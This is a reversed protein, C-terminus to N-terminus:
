AAPQSPGPRLLPTSTDRRPRQPITYTRVRGDRYHIRVQLCTRPRPPALAGPCAPLAWGRRSRGPVVGLVAAGTPALAGRANRRRVRVSLPSGGAMALADVRSIRAWGATVLVPWPGPNSVVCERFAGSPTPARLALRADGPQDGTGIGLWLLYCSVTAALLIAGAGGLVSTEFPSM